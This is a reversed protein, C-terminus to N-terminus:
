PPLPELVRGLATFRAAMNMRIIVNQDPTIRIEGTGYAEALRAVEKLQEGTIPGLPM